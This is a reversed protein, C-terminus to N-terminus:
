PRSRLRGNYECVQSVYVLLIVTTPSVLVYFCANTSNANYNYALFRSHRPDRSIYIDGYSLALILRPCSLQPACELM